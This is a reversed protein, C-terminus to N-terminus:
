ARTASIAHQQLAAQAMHGRGAVVDLQDIFRKIAQRDHWLSEREDVTKARDWQEIIKERALAISRVFGPDNLLQSAAQGEIKENEISM